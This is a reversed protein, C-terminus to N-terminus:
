TYLEAFNTMITSSHLIFTKTVLYSTSRIIKMYSTSIVALPLIFGFIYIFFVYSMNLVFDSEESGAWKVGCSFMNFIEKPFPENMIM